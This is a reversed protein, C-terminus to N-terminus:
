VGRSMLALYWQIIETGYIYAIVGALCLFPGFPIEERLSKGQFKMLITGVIAGILSGSIITLLVGGPGLWAGYAGILKVDGMGLASKGYILPSILALLLFIAGGLFFGGLVWWLQQPQFQGGVATSLPYRTFIGSLLGIVVLIYNL